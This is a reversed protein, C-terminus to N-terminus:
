ILVELSEIDGIALVPTKTTFNPSQFPRKLTKSFVL